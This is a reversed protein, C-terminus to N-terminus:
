KNCERVQESRGSRLSGAVHAVLRDFAQKRAAPYEIRVSNWVNDRCSLISKVYFIRDGQTGSVVIARPERHRYTITEGDDPKEIIAVAEDISDWIHLGGYVAVSAQGDPSTFVLGDGNAPPRGARWDAPVDATTGFRANSYVRWSEALGQADLCVLLLGAILWLRM